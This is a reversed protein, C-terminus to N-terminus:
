RSFSSRGVGPALTYRLPFIRIVWFASAYRVATREMAQNSKLSTWCSRASSSFLPDKVDLGTRGSSQRYIARATGRSLFEVTTSCTELVSTSVRIFTSRLSMSKTQSRISLRRKPFRHSRLSPMASRVIATAALCRGARRRSPRPIADEITQGVHAKFEDRTM